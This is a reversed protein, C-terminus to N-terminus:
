AKVVRYEIRRNQLRGEQSDNDAVPKASGYGKAVLMSPDVGSQVL